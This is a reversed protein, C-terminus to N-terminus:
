KIQSNMLPERGPAVGNQSKSATNHANGQTQYVPGEQQTISELQLLQQQQMLLPVM